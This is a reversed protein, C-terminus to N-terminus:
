VEEHLNQSVATRRREGPMKGTNHGAFVLWKKLGCLCLAAGAAGCVCWGAITVDWGLASAAAGIGYTSLASGLYASSNLIGSATSSKGQGAFYMPMVSVLMTNVAMMSTTALALLVLSLVIHWGSFIRLLVLCIASVGFFACSTKVEDHFVRQKVYYSLYVGGLNFVPIVVTGLIAAVSGVHFIESIYTPVWTTVGDKLIGQMVLALCVFVMGSSAVTQLFSNKGQLLQPEKKGAPDAGSLSEEEQLVGFNDAYKEARTMGVLWLAAVALIVAAAGYFAAKWSLLGILLATGGYAALTGLPVTSTIHICAKMRDEKLFRQSFIKVIPSWIFSQLFGNAAWVATMGAATGCLPVAINALGSGTLGIFIMWKPPLKDGLFGNLLQGGGYALFFAMGIMGAEGKPLGQSRIMETLSASYNLRGLYTSFYAAWCLAFLFRSMAPDAIKRVGM